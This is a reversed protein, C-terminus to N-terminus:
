PMDESRSSGNGLHLALRPRPRVIGSATDTRAPRPAAAAALRGALLECLLHILVTQVEHVRAPDSVPLVLAADALDRLPGGDGGLLAVCRLGRAHASEFAQVLGHSQGDTSIGLLVDGECGFTEVQRAFVNQYPDDRREDSWATLVPSEGCLALVPAAQREGTRIRSVLGAALHQVLATSGGDGCVLVKRGADFCAGIMEAAELVFLRLRRRSEQMAELAAEFGQDVIAAQADEHCAGAKGAALVEEYVAALMAAVKGWTFLDNARRVAQRSLVSLLKPHGYLHALREALQDPDRPPVLYGTEGDRVTYKIGGVNSGVVPTGCAMAEVPTIGFPEYWPVTVFVDAASYYYKLTERGRRGVFTVWDAVGEARAIEQLRGLEPTVRPDPEDSDGGVLLLRAAIGHDRVLRGLGRIVTDVGKRPVMRGLQLIVRDEPPIKLAFRALPKSLPSLEAPDFGCPLITIRAPDANYHRILDEEDQPCEALIRDAEAIIRDEIEFRVDPFRDAEKQHQRRVRGLAHFTIVFPLGLSRKLECAVLGSMWFNAHVLDYSGRQCQCFHRLYAAFDDMFPLMEEKRVFAPPGAPVHIIRVGAEWEAIEPLRDSDRRTFVDVEYGISALQKALQGVYLNQGGSDVGGLVCLPSAHESIVAIRKTM